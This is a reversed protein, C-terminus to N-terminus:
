KDRVEKNFNKNYFEDIGDNRYKINNMQIQYKQEEKM